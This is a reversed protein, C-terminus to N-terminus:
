IAIIKYLFNIIKVGLVTSIESSSTAPDEPGLIMIVIFCAIILVMVVGIIIAITWPFQITERKEDIPVVETAELESTPKDSKEYEIEFQSEDISFDEKYGENKKDEM